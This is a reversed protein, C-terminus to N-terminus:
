STVVRRGPRTHHVLVVDDHDAATRGALVEGGGDGLSPEADRDHLAFEEAASGHADLHRLREPPEAGLDGQDLARVVQQGAFGLRGAAREALHQGRVADLQVEARM